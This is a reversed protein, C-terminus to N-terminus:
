FIDLEGKATQDADPPIAASVEGADISEVEPIEFFIAGGKEKAAGSHAAPAKTKSAEKAPAKTEAQPAAAPTAASPQAANKAAQKGTLSKEIADEFQNLRDLASLIGDEIRGQDEKFRTVLSELEDIRKQYSDLKARLEAERQLLATENQALAAERQLLRANEGAVQEVYEIAKVVRTELLKVKELSVM